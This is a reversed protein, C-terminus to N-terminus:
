CFRININWRDLQSSSLEKNLNELLLIRAFSNINLPDVHIFRYYIAWQWSFWFSLSWYNKLGKSLWNKVSQFHCRKKGDDLCIIMDIRSLYYTYSNLCYRCIDGNSLLSDNYLTTMVINNYVSYSKDATPWLIRHFFKICPTYCGIYFSDNQDNQKRIDPTSSDITFAGSTLRCLLFVFLAFLSTLNKLALNLHVGSIYIHLFFKYLRLM